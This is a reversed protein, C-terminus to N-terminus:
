DLMEALHAFFGEPSLRDQWLRRCTRQRDIFEEPTLADHFEAVRAGANEIDSAPCWVALKSWENLAAFPVVCDTDIILPIRGLCLTEYL